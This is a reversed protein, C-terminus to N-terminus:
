HVTASGSADSPRNRTLVTVSVLESNRQHYKKGRTQGMSRRIQPLFRGEEGGEMSHRWTM